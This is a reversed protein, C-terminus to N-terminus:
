SLKERHSNIDLTKIAQLPKFGNFSKFGDLSKFALNFACFETM